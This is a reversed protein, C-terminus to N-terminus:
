DAELRDRRITRFLLLSVAELLDRNSTPKDLFAANSDLLATNEFLRGSFGTVYLIKADPDRARIRQALETGRMGPMMVDLVFADFHGPEEIRALAEDGNAAVVVQYGANRLVREMLERNSQEDEVVLLRPPRIDGSNRLSDNM